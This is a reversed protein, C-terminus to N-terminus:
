PNSTANPHYVLTAAKRRSKAKGRHASMARARETHGVQHLEVQAPDPESTLYRITVEFLGFRPATPYNDRPNAPCLEMKDQSLILLPTPDLTYIVLHCLIVAVLYYGLRIAVGNGFLQGPM